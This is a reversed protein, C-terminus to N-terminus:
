GRFAGALLRALQDIAEDVSVAGTDIMDGLGFVANVVAWILARAAPDASSGIIETWRDIVRARMAAALEALEHNRGSAGTMLLTRLIQREESRLSLAQRAAFLAADVGPRDYQALAGAITADVAAFRDLLLEAVLTPLDAFHEYVLQRSVGAEAALGAMTLAHLGDRGAITAATALLQRRRDDARLYPRKPQDSRAPAPRAPSM